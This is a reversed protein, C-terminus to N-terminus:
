SFISRGPFTNEIAGIEEDSYDTMFYMPSWSPNWIEIVNLTEMINHTSEGECVFIAVAQCDVNTKVVLFFLPLAYRTIKYTAHM